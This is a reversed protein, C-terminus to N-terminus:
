LVGHKFWVNSIELLVKPDLEAEILFGYVKRRPPLLFRGINFGDV